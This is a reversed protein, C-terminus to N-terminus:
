CKCNPDRWRKAMAQFETYIKPNKHQERVAKIYEEAEDFHRIYTTKMWDKYFSEDLIKKKIAVAILEYHNLFDNLNRRAEKEQDSQADILSSLGGHRKSESSFSSYIKQYFSNSESELIIDLTARMRAVERQHKIAFIAVLAGITASLIIAVPTIWWHGNNIIEIVCNETSTM